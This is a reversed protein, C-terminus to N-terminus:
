ANRLENYFDILESALALINFKEKILIKAHNSFSIPDFNESFVLGISDVFEQITNALLFHLGPVAPIGEIAKYSAIVVKGKQMAEIIKVRMGSGSFLPVVMFNSQAFFVDTSDLEGHFCIGRTNQLLKVISLPANRGAIHFICDPYKKIVLPWVQKLFWLIAEQNPIWDLAGIYLLTKGEPLFSSSDPIFPLGFPILKMKLSSDWQSLYKMDGETLATIGNVRNLCDLEYNKIRRTQTFFYRKKFINKEQSAINKWLLHEINHARLIIRAKSYQRIVPIYPSLCISELQVIDPNHASLLEILKRQYGKDIFRQVQYPIKSFMLNKLAAFVHPTTDVPVTYIHLGEPIAGMNNSSIFHKPPNVALITVTHGLTCFANSFSYVGAAGGDKPPFPVKTCLQLIKV